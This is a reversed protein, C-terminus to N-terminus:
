GRDGHRQHHAPGSELIGGGAADTDGNRITLANISASVSSNIAFPRYSNAGDIILNTTGPGTINVNDSIPPLDAGLTITGNASFTITDTIGANTNAATIAERLTCNAVDCTGDGPDALSNVVYSQAAPKPFSSEFAGSDCAEGGPNPRAFGRQDVSNVPAAACTAPIGTGLAPSGSLLAHTLTPGGNNALSPDLRVDVYMREPEFVCWGDDSWNGGGNILPGQCNELSDIDDFISNTVTATGGNYLGGSAGAYGGTFTVNTITATGSNYIGGGNQPVTNGSFTTNAVTLTGSSAVGGGWLSENDQFLSATISVTGLVNQIGGGGNTLAENNSFTSTTITLSNTTLIGGGTSSTAENSDVTSGSISITGFNHIAGGTPAANLTLESDTITVTGVNAIAGGVETANNGTLVSDDITVTGFNYLAGGRTASGNTLTVGSIGVTVGTQVYFIRFADGGSITLNAAGPGNITLGESISPLDSLLTITAPYSLSFNIEDAGAASNADLIAQRLSGLGSNATNTVTFTAALPAAGPSELHSVDAPTSVGAYAFQAPVVLSILAFIVLAVLRRSRSAPKM